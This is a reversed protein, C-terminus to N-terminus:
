KAAGAMMAQHMRILRTVRACDAPMAQKVENKNMQPLRVLDERVSDALTNWAANPPLNMARSESVMQSLMDGVMQRHMPIMATMQEASMHGARRMHAQMSDLMAASTMGHMGHMGHAGHMGAMGPTTGGCCTKTSTDATVPRTTDARPAASGITEAPPAVTGSATASDGSSPPQKAKCATMATGAVCAVLACAVVNVRM